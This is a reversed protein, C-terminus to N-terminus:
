PRLRLRGFWCRITYVKNFFSRPVFTGCLCAFWKLMCCSPKICEMLVKRGERSRGSRILQKALFVQTNALYAILHSRTERPLNKQALLTRGTCILSHETGYTYINSVRNSAGLHWTALIKNCFAVPFEAAIRVWMERDGGLTVGLPFGGVKRFVYEPVAVSSSCLTVGKAVIKFYSDLIGDKGTPPVGRFKPVMCKGIPTLIQWATGYIGCNPYKLYMAVIAELFGPEWTDDADLLAILQGKAESIGRNRAGCEGANGQQILHLNPVMLSKVIDASNDTSGDDVVIIESPRLTQNHVSRLARAIENAKNYLPIVVSVSPITTIRMTAVGIDVPGM